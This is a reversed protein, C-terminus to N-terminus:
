RTGNARDRCYVTIHHRRAHDCTDRCVSPPINLANSANREPVDLNADIATPRNVTASAPAHSAAWDGYPNGRAATSDCPHPAQQPVFKRMGRQVHLAATAPMPPNPLADEARSALGERRMGSPTSAGHGPMGVTEIRYKTDMEAFLIPLFYRIPYLTDAEAGFKEIIGRAVAQDPGHM